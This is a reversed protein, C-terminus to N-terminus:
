PQLVGAGDVRTVSNDIFIKGEFLKFQPSTPPVLFIDYLLKKYQSVLYTEQSPIEIKVTTLPENLNTIQNLVSSVQITIKGNDTTCNFQPIALDDYTPRAQMYIKYGTLDTNKMNFAILFGVGSEIYIDIQTPSLPMAFVQIIDTM